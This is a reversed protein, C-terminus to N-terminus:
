ASVEWLTRAVGSTRVPEGCSECLRPKRPRSPMDWGGRAPREAVVEFGAARLSAGSEGAQTYTILREYGLARAVKWGNRSLMSNANRTGDTATRLLEVTARDGSALARAVPLGIIGVGVLVDDVAAGFQAIWATPDFHHRHHALVFARADARSVPVIRLGSM